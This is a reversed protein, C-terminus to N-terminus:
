FYPEERGAKIWSHLIRILGDIWRDRLIKEFKARQFARLSYGELQVDQIRYQGPKVERVLWGLEAKDKEGYEVNTVVLSADSGSDKVSVIEFKKLEFKGLMEPYAMMVYDRFVGLYEEVRKPNSQRLFPGLAFRGLAEIDLGDDILKKLAERRDKRANVAAIARQGLGDIFARAGDPSAAAPAPALGPYLISVLAAALPFAAIRALLTRRTPLNM